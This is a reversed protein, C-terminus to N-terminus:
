GDRKVTHRSKTENNEWQELERTRLAGNGNNARTISAGTTPQACGHGGVSRSRVRLVLIVSNRLVFLHNCAM